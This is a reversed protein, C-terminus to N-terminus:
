NIQAHGVKVLWTAERKSNTTDSLSNVASSCYSHGYGGDSSESQTQRSYHCGKICVISKRAQTTIKSFKSIKASRPKAEGVKRWKAEASMKGSWLHTHLRLEDLYSSTTLVELSRGQKKCLRDKVKSQSFCWVLSIELIQGRQKRLDSVPGTSAEASWDRRTTIEFSETSEESLFLSEVCDVPM